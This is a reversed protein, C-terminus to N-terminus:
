VRDELMFGGVGDARDREVGLIRIDYPDACSLQVRLPANTVAVAHVLRLIACLRPVVHAELRGLMDPADHDVWAVGVGDVDGRLAREPARAAVPSEVFRGVAALGPLLDQGHALIG